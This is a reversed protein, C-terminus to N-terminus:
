LHTPQPRRSRVVVSLIALGTDTFARSMGRRYTPRSEELTRRVTTHRRQRNYFVEIYEFM